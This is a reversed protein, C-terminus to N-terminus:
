HRVAGKRGSDRGPDTKKERRLNWSTVRANHTLAQWGLMLASRHVGRVRSSTCAVM